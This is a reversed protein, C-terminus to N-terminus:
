RIATLVRNGLHQWVVDVERFGADLLAARHVEFHTHRNPAIDDTREAGMAREREGARWAFRRDRKAFLEELGPVERLALWWQDWSEAGMESSHRRHEERLDQAVRRLVPRSEVFDMQDGNMLIGGPRIVGALRRYLDVIGGAPLWHIATTSLVADVREIGLRQPWMEDQLDAEEWRIRGDADELAGRGVAILLPDLDVAIVHARPFREVVRRTIAGPGCMLDIVTFEDPMLAGLVDLMVAFREERFAIYASQQREWRWYWDRWDVAAVPEADRYRPLPAHMPLEFHVAASPDGDVRADYTLRAVSRWFPEAGPVSADTHLYIDAYGGDAVVFRRAAEVLASAVGRRRHERAIYVRYLQATTEWVYRRTFWSPFPPSVPGGTRVATAGMVDGSSDDVAVFLAHRPNDLYVIEPQDLDFHYRPMYPTKIDEALVKRILAVAPELDARRAHRVTFGSERIEVDDRHSVVSAM